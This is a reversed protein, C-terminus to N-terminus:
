TQVQLRLMGEFVHINENFDEIFHVLFGHLDEFFGQFRELLFLFLSFDFGFLSFELCLLRGVFGGSFESISIWKENKRVWMQM